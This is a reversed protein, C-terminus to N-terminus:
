KDSLCMQKHLGSTCLSHAVWVHKRATRTYDPLPCWHATNQSPGIPVLTQQMFVGASLLAAGSQSVRSGTQTFVCLMLYSIFKKKKTCKCGRFSARNDQTILGWPYICPPPAPGTEM